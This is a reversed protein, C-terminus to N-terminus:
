GLMGRVEECVSLKYKAAELNSEIEEIIENLGKITRDLKEIAAPVNTPKPKVINTQRVPKIANIPNTGVAKARKEKLWRAQYCKKCEQTKRFYKKGDKTVLGCVSCRLVEKEEKDM